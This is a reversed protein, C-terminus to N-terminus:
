ERQYKPRQANANPRTTPFLKRPHAYADSDQSLQYDRRRLDPHKPLNVIEGRTEKRSADRERPEAREHDSQDNEGRGRESTERRHTEDDRRRQKENKEGTEGSPHLRPSLFVHDPPSPRSLAPFAASHTLASHSAM